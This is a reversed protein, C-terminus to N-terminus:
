RYGNAFAACRRRAATATRHSSTFDTSAIARTAATTALRWPAKLATNVWIAGVHTQRRASHRPRYTHNTRRRWRHASTLTSPTITTTRVSSRIRRVSWRRCHHASLINTKATSASHPSIAPAIPTQPLTSPIRVNRSPVYLPSILTSSPHWRYQLLHSPPPLGCSPAALCTRIL